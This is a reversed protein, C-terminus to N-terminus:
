AFTRQAQRAFTREKWGSFTMSVASHGLKPGLGGMM